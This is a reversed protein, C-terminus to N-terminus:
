DAGLDVAIVDPGDLDSYSTHLYFTQDVIVGPNASTIGDISWLEEGTSASIAFTRSEESELDSGLVLVDGLRGLAEVGSGVAHEGVLAGSAAEYIAVKAGSAVVVTDGLHDISSMEEGFNTRWAEGAPQSVRHAIVETGEYTVVIDSGPATMLSESARPLAAGVEGTAMDIPSFTDPTLTLALDTGPLCLLGATGESRWREGGDTLGLGLIESRDGDVTEVTVTDPGVCTTTSSDGLDHSWMETGDSVDLAHVVDGGEVILVETNRALLTQGPESTWMQEGTEADFAVLSVGDSVLVPQHSSDPVNEDPSVLHDATTCWLREGTEADLALAFPTLGQTPAVVYFVLAGDLPPTTGSAGGTERAWVIPAGGDIESDVADPGEETPCDADLEVRAEGSAGEGGSSAGDSDGDSGGCASVGAGLIVAM